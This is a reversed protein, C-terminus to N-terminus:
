TNGLADDVAQEIARWLPYGATTVSDPIGPLRRTTAGHVVPCIPRWADDISLTKASCLYCRPTPRGRKASATVLNAATHSGAHSDHGHSGDHVHEHSHTLDDGHAHQHDVPYDHALGAGHADFGRGLPATYRTRKGDAGLSGRYPKVVIGKTVNDALRDYAATIVRMAQPPIDAAADSRRWEQFQANNM